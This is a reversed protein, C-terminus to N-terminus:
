TVPMPPLNSFFNPLVTFMFWVYILMLLSYGIYIGVPLGVTIIANTRSLSRSHKMGYIWIYASWLTFIVSALIPVVLLTPSGMNSMMYEQFMEPNDMPFETPFQYTQLMYANIGGQIVESFLVPIFGYGVFELARKFEGVGDFLFTIVYFIGTCALWMVFPIIIAFVAGLLMFLRMFSAFPLMDQPLSEIMKESSLYSLIALIFSIAAIIVFIFFPEKLSVEDKLKEEFFKDPNTLVSLINTIHAGGKKCLICKFM